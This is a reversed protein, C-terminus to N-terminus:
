ARPPEREREPKSEVAGSPIFRRRDGLRRDYDCHTVLAREECRIRVTLLWSNLASFGLASIWAGHILPVALGELVVALYNPHRLYRFPGRRVAQAGPVVIVRVNWHKGLSAIAWYRLGQAMLAVAFLPWALAPSLPPRLLLVEAVIAAFLASHLLKMWVVHREGVEVGGHALAWAANRSSIVLEVVREAGLLAIFGLYLWSGLPLSTLQALTM